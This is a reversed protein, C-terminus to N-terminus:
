FTKTLIQRYLDFYKLSMARINFLEVAKKRNYEGMRLMLEKNDALDKIRNTLCDVDDMECTFGGKGNDIQEPIGAINTTVVPKGCSMAETITYPMGELRSPFLFIDALNYMNVLEDSDPKLHKINVMRKESHNKYTKGFNGTYFLVFRNDLKSMIEPLLDVGKVFCFRGIFLLKIKDKYRALEGKYEVKRPKFLETDIGNYIVEVDKNNLIEELTKKNKKSISIIKDAKKYSLLAYDRRIKDGISQIVGYHKRLASGYKELFKSGQYFEHLTVVFPKDTFQKLFVGEYSTSHIIDFKKNETLFNMITQLNPITGKLFSYERLEAEVSNLQNMASVLRKAYLKTGGVANKPSIYLIKYTRSLRGATETKSYACMKVDAYKINLM